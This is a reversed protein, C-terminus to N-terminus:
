LNLVIRWQIPVIKSNILDLVNNWFYVERNIRVLPKNQFTLMVVSGLVLLFNFYISPKTIRISNVSAIKDDHSESIRGNM